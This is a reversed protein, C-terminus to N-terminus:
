FLEPERECEQPEVKASAQRYARGDFRWKYVTTKPCCHMRCASRGTLDRMGHARGEAREMNSNVTVDAVRHGCNGRMVYVIHRVDMNAAGAFIIWDEEGDEDLDVRSDIQCFGELPTQLGISVLRDADKLPDVCPGPLAVPPRRVLPAKSSSGSTAPGPAASALLGPSASGSAQASASALAQALGPASASASSRVTEKEATGVVIPTQAGLPTPGQPCAAIALPFTAILITVCLSVHM